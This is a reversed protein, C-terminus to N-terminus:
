GEWGSPRQASCSLAGELLACAKDVIYFEHMSTISPKVDDAYAVVKYLQQMPPLIHSSSNELTPGLVHLSTIPIGTLKKDLYVLLPYIGAAFWYMSPVDGQRLSGRNNPFAQGPLNNVVVITTSDAYLRRIRSIVEQCVGKIELVLYVWAMDLWDFGAMFDLDLLGCGAKGKGAQRIADRALNIGHHIRRDSAAVLQM